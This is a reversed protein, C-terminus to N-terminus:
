AIVSTKHCVFLDGQHIFTMGQAPLVIQDIVAVHCVGVDNQELDHVGLGHSVHVYGGLDADLQLEGGGSRFPRSRTTLRLSFSLKYAAM